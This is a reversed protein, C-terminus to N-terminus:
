QTSVRVGSYGSQTSVRVASYERAQLVALTAVLIQREHAHAEVSTTLAKRGRGWEPRNASLGDGVQAKEWKARDWKARAKLARGSPEGELGMGM